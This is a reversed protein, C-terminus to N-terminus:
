SGDIVHRQIRHEIMLPMLKSLAGLWLLAIVGFAVGLRDIPLGIPVAVVSGAIGLWLPMLALQRWGLRASRISGLCACDVDLDRFIALAAAAAFIAALGFIWLATVWQGPLLVLALGAGSELVGLAMALMQVVPLQLAQITRRISAPEALKSAGAWILVMATLTDLVVVISQVVPQNVTQRSGICNKDRPSASGEANLRTHM